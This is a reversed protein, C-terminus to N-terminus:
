HEIIKQVLEPIWNIMKTAHGRDLPLFQFNSALGQLGLDELALLHNRSPVHTHVEDVTNLTSASGQLSTLRTGADQLAVRFIISVASIIAPNSSNAFSDKVRDQLVEYILSVVEPFCSTIDALLNYLIQTESDDGQASSLISGVFSTVLLATTANDLGILDLSVRPVDGIDDINETLGGNTFEQSLGSIALLERYSSATTSASLLAIFYGLAEPSVVAYRRGNNTIRLLTRLASVASERLGGHRVGKFIVTALSFSFNSTFSIGLLHDLQGAIDDLAVRARLLVDNVDEDQFLGRAEMAELTRELLQTAEIYFASHSSQILAVALWFLPGLYRGGDSLAPVIHCMCRLMSVIATTDTETSQSLSTKFAVLMQYLFDDDVDSTALQGLVIFARSQIAPSIQFATSAVLSMWRARWVNLIGISGASPELVTLLLQTLQAYSDIMAKDSSPDYDTYEGTPSCRELGFLRLVKPEELERLLTLVDPGTGTDAQQVHLGQLFNVVIGYVSKRVLTVGTGALLVVAHFLEPVYLASCHPLTGCVYVLRALTALENWHLTLELSRHAKPSAKGLSKRLRSLLRGKVNISSMTCVIRSLSECRGTGVASDVAMRIIEDLVINVTASDLRGVETWIYNQVISGFEYDVTPMDALVRICDRLRAGSREYLKSSPNTFLELNKLWPTMYRLCNSKRAITSKDMTSLGSAVESIFDLTLQPRYRALESSLQFVFSAPDGPIFGTTPAVVPSKDYGLYSCISGLLVYSASRLEEEDTDMNLMGVHLLTAPANSFRSLRESLPPQTEKLVAKAARINKVITDRVASSFYLTVGHRSRRVIFENLEQGTSVNYVDSIDALSVIEVARCSLSPSISQAKASTIRLHTTAVELTIPLYIHYRKSIDKYTERPEAELSAAYQLPKLLDRHVHKALEEVSSCAKIESCFPAGASINYLRRMYKQATFNPNLIYTVMFREQVDLPIIEAFHKLWQIPLESAQTLSTCDIVLDFQSSSYFSSNLVKFIYYVLLEIEVAEVDIKALHLVFLARDGPFLHHPDGKAFLHSVEDTNRHAFRAMLEKYEPHVSSNLSSLRPPEPSPGLDVLLACLQDWARKGPVAMTDLDPNTKSHSLLEKGIKDAHKEFYRHLVVVDTEDPTAGLWEDEDENDSSTESYKNLESLYKTVNVINDQLFANLCMMHQEKGFFINNALNQIIKTIVMLGRRMIIAEEYPIEIDITEPAVVAPSIFRLFIFAGLAAFKAEPWVEVVSQAIHACIERFMSPLAPISSFLINLFGSAVIEVHKQNQAVEQEGAKSPDLEYGQGPKASMMKVLPLILHRLYNYGHIRAFASLFRTCISNGRFLSAETETVSIERDILLKILSMLSNRTDFINLLASITIDMEAPPCTECIALALVMDPSKVLERLRAQPTQVTSQEQLEFRTGQGLVRAFLHAHIIKNRTSEYALRLCNKFGAESNATVLHSLGTIVLDRVEAERQSVHIRRQLTPSESVTDSTVIDGKPPEFQKMMALLTSTYRTCLRTVVHSGDDGTSGDLPQLKMRELLKVVTRLCVLNLEKQLDSDDRDYGYIPIPEKVEHFWGMLYDVVINRAHSDKRVAQTLAQTRFRTYVLECLQCFKIKTRLSSTFDFRSIFIALAALTSNCDIDDIICNPNEVLLKLLAIFQDLFLVYNETFDGGASQTITQVVFTLHRLLRSYLKPSMETGLADRAVERVEVYEAVLLNTLDKIFTLVLNTPNQLARIDDPLFEPPISHVLTPVSGDEILCAGGFAALFLTLNKWQHYKDQWAATMVSRYTSADVTGFEAMSELISESLTRWRWYCEQWVAVHSACPYAIIRMLRRIRKQYGLRGVVAVTPDGLQEFIPNRKSRDEESINPDIPAGAHREAQALTRLGQAASHCVSTDSSTLSIMFAIESMAFAPIRLPDLQFDKIHAGERKTTYIRLFNQLVTVWLRQQETDARSYILSSAIAAMAAPFAHKLWSVGLVYLPDEPNMSFVVEVAVRLTYATSLKVTTEFQSCFIRTLSTISLRMDRDLLSFFYLSPDARWLALTALLEIDKDPLQNGGPTQRAKPRSLPKKINGYRDLEIRSSVLSALIATIRCAIPGRLAETSRTWPFQDAELSLILCARVACTKVAESREPELCLTFLALGEEAPLFRYVAVLVESFMPVDIADESEWFPKKLSNSWLGVKIEHAVDGAVDCIAVESDEEIRVRAAARCLDLACQIATETLKTPSNCHKLIDEGFRVDKRGYQKPRPQDSGFTFDTSIREPTICNLAMLTPWIDQEMGPQIVAYLQDFLREPAGDLRTRLHMVDNFEHPCIEIWKWVALRLPQMVSLLHLHKINVLLSSLENLLQILKVRDLACHAMIFLDPADPPLEKSENDALLHIRTRIRLFVAKWNTISLHHVIRGAFKLILNSLIHTDSVISMHTSEYNANSVSSPMYSSISHRSSLISTASLRNRLVPSPGESNSAVTESAAARRRAALYVSSKHLDLQEYEYFASEISFDSASSSTSTPRLFLVLVSLIYKACNDDLPPPDAWSAPPTSTDSRSPLYSRYPAQPVPSGSTTSTSSSAVGTPRGSDAWRSAMVISLVKLILLRSQIIDLTNSAEPDCMGIIRDLMECLSWAILGLCDTALEVLANIVQQMVSDAELRDLSIGSNCPLKNKLRSILTQVIKQQPTTAAGVSSASPQSSLSPLPPHTEHTRFIRSSSAVPTQSAHGAASSGRRGPM